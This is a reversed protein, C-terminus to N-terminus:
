RGALGSMQIGGVFYRQAFFFIVLLPLLMATSAAMMLNWSTSYLDKFGLLGIAMTWKQPNQLYILPQFFDNWHHIFSFVAITAVVPKSLPLIITWYIRYNSAGDIRAAEDLEYPITMFFQRFLFVNFAGGGMWLPVILPLLTNIWKLWRFVIFTPILTVISPLMITSLVLLFIQERYPFRLRAFAFAAMSATFLTGLTAFVVIQATNWFYKDFPVARFAEPYNEWIFPEPIWKPPMIFTQAGTKLSTSVLWVLPLALAIGVVTLIIYGLFAWAGDITRRRARSRAALGSTLLSANSDTSLM